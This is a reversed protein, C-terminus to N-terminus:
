GKFLRRATNGNNSMRSRGAKVKNVLLSMENKLLDQNKKKNKLKQQDEEGRAQWKKNGFSILHPAFM